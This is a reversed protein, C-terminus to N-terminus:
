KGKKRKKMEFVDDLLKPLPVLLDDVKEIQVLRSDCTTGRCTELEDNNYALTWLHELEAQLGEIVTATSSRAILMQCFAKVDDLTFACNPWRDAGAM